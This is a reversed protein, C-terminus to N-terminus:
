EASGCLRQLWAVTDALVLADDLPPAHVYPRFKLFKAHFCAIGAVRAGCCTKGVAGRKRHFGSEAGIRM